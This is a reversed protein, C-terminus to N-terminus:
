PESIDVYTGMSKVLVRHSGKVTSINGTMNAISTATINRKIGAPTWLLEMSITSGSIYIQQVNDPFNPYVFFRAPPGQVYASSSVETISDLASEAYAVQLDWRTSEVNANSYVWLVGVLVLSFGFIIMYEIGAQAKM